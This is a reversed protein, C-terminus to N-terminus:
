NLPRSYNVLQINHQKVYSKVREDCLVALEVVRNTHYSSSQYLKLDCYGPHTMLEIGEEQDHEELIHILTDATATEGYFGSVYTFNSYRRMPLRYEEAIKKSIPLLHGADHVSHHSDLHDPMRHFVEIFREIQAKFEQYVEEEDLLSLEEYFQKRSKFQMGDKTITKGHTLSKGLTLTLHVGVGLGDLGQMLQAGYILDEMNCLATTSTLIGNQYGEIIGECIGKTYGFDDANIILKM